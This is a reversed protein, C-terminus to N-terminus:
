SSPECTAYARAIPFRVGQHQGIPRGLVSRGKAYAVSREKFWKADSMCEAAILIREANM